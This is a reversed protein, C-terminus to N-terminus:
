NGSIRKVLEDFSEALEKIEIGCNELSALIENRSTELNEIRGIIETVDHEVTENNVELNQDQEM